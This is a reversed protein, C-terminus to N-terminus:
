LESDSSSVFNASKRIENIIRELEKDEREGLTLLEILEGSTQQIIKSSESIREGSIISTTQQDQIESVCDRIDSATTSVNYVDTSNCSFLFISIVIIFIIKENM